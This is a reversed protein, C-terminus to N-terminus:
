VQQRAVDQPTGAVEKEAWNETTGVRDTVRVM